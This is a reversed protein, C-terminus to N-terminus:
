SSGADRLTDNVQSQDAIAPTEPLADAAPQQTRLWQLERQIEERWPGAGDWQQLELLTQRAEVHRHQRRLVAALLLRTEADDIQQDLIRRAITEAESWRGQLYETQAAIFLAEVADGAPMPAIQDAQTQTRWLSICWFSATALWIMVIGLAPLAGPWLFSAAIGANLLVSFAVAAAMGLWDGRLWLQPLGPWFAMLRMAFRM